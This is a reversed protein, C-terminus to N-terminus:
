LAPQFNREIEVKPDTENEEVKERFKHILAEIKIKGVKNLSMRNISYTFKNVFSIVTNTYTNM